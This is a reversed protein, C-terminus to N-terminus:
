NAIQVMNGTLRDYSSVPHLQQTLLFLPPHPIRLHPSHLFQLSTYQFLLFGQIADPKQFFPFHWHLYFVNLLRHPLRRSQYRLFREHFLDIRRHHLHLLGLLRSLRHDLITHRFLKNLLLLFRCMSKQFLFSGRHSRLPVVEELPPQHFFLYGLIVLFHFQYLLNRQFEVYRLFHSPFAPRVLRVWRDLM